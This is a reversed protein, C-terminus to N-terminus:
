GGELIAKAEDPTIRPVLREDYHLTIMAIDLPRFNPNADASLQIVALLVSDIGEVHGQFGLAHMMEHRLTSRTVDPYTTEIENGNTDNRPLFIVADVLTGGEAASATVSLTRTFAYTPVAEGPVIDVWQAFDVGAYVVTNAEAAESTRRIDLGPLADLEAILLDLEDSYITRLPAFPDNPASGRGFVVIPETWKLIVEHNTALVFWEDISDALPNAVVTSPAVPTCVLLLPTETLVGGPYIAFFAQNVVQIPTPIYGVLGGAPDNAWLSVVGCGQAAAEVTLAEVSGGGWVALTMGGAPPINATLEGEAAEATAPASTLPAAVAVAVLLMGLLAFRVNRM